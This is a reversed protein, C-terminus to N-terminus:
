KVCTIIVSNTTPVTTTAEASSRNAASRTTRRIVTTALNARASPLTTKRPANLTGAACFQDMARMSVNRRDWLMRAASNDTIANTTRAVDYKRSASITRASRTIRVVPTLVVRRSALEKSVCSTESVSV